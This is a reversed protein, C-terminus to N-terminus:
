ELPRYGSPRFRPVCICQFLLDTDGTNTIQQAAHAPIAVSDGPAVDFSEEDVRMRGSGQEIVYWEAVDLSHLETTVGAEVRCRALSVAPVRADNLRETIFCRERTPFEESNRGKILPHQM